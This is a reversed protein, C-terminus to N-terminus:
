LEGIDEVLIFAPQTMSAQMTVVSTDARMSLKWTTSGSISGSNVYMQNISENQAVVHEGQLITSGSRISVWATSGVESKTLQSSARYRRGAVATFSVSLGTLDTITDPISAQDAVVQAYAVYGAANAVSWPDATTGSGSIAGGTIACGCRSGGCLGAM